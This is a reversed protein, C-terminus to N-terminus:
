CSSIIRRTTMSPTAARRGSPAQAPTGAVLRRMPTEFVALSLAALALTVTVVLTFLALGLLPSPAPVLRVAMAMLPLHFLYAGYSIDGLRRAPPAGLLRMPGAACLAAVLFLLPAGATLPDLFTPLAPLGLTRRFEPFAALLLLPAAYGLPRRLVQVVGAPVRAFGWGLLVGFLFLHLWYLLAHTESGPRYFLLVGAVALGGAVALAPLLRGRAGLWWLLAFLVYFQVEVAVTWLVSGGRLLLLHGGPDDAVPYLVGPLALSLLLVAYYLPLVRGARHRAYRTLAAATCPEGLHLRAMLFGSLAFFLTVGMEGVGKGLVGPLLGLNAGHSVLVLALAVGRVGDLVPLRPSAPPPGIDIM